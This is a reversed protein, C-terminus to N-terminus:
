GLVEHAVNLLSCIGDPLRSRRYNLSPTSAGAFLPRALPELQHPWATTGWIHLVSSPVRRKWGRPLPLKPPM